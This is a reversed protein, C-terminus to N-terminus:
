LGMSRSVKVNLRSITAGAPASGPIFSMPASSNFVVVGGASDIKTRVQPSNGSFLMSGSVTQSRTHLQALTGSFLLTGSASSVRVKSLASVGSFVVTGGVTLNYTTGGGVATFTIPATGSFLVTGGVSESKERAYSAAGSFTLVGGVSLTYVTGTPVDSVWPQNLIAFDADFYDYDLDDQNNIRTNWTLLGPTANVQGLTVQRNLLVYFYTDLEDQYGDLGALDDLPYDIIAEGSM